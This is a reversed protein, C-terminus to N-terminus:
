VTDVLKTDVYKTYETFKIIFKKTYRTLYVIRPYYSTYLIICVIILNYKDYNAYKTCIDKLLKIDIAIFGISIISLLIKYFLIKISTNDNENIIGQQVKYSYVLKSSESLRNLIKKQEVNENYSLSFHRDFCENFSMEYDVMDCMFRKTLITFVVLIHCFCYVFMYSCQVDVILCTWTLSMIIISLKMIMPIISLIIDIINAIDTKVVLIVDNTIFQIRKIM